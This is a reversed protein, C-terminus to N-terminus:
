QITSSTPAPAVTPASSADFLRIFQAVIQGADNPSGIIVVQDNVKLDSLKLRDRAHLISTDDNILVSKEMNDLGKVVLNQGDIKVIQGFTGNGQMFGKDSFDHFFGTRPGGFNRHYNESWRYSFGAKHIGVVMGLKFVLLLVVCGAVIWTVLAFVRSTFLTRMTM